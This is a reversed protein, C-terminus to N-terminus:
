FSRWPVLTRIPNPTTIPLLINLTSMLSNTLLLAMNSQMSGRLMFGSPKGLQIQPWCRLFWRIWTQSPKNGRLAEAKKRITRKNLTPWIQSFSLGTLSYRRQRLLYCSNDLTARRLLYHTALIVIICLTTLFSPVTARRSSSAYMRAALIRCGEQIIDEIDHVDQARKRKPM